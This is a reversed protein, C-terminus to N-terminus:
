HLFMRTTSYCFTGGLGGAATETGELFFGGGGGLSSSLRVAVSPILLDGTIVILDATM